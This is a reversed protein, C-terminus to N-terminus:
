FCFGLHSSTSPLIVLPAYSTGVNKGDITNSSDDSNLNEDNENGVSPEYDM